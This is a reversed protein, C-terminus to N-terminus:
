LLGGHSKSSNLWPQGSSGWFLCSGKWFTGNWAGHFTRSLYSSRPLVHQYFLTWSRTVIEWLYRYVSGHSTHLLDKANICAPQTQSGLPPEWLVLWSPDQSGAPHFDFMLKSSTFSNILSRCLTYTHVSCVPSQSLYSFHTEDKSPAQPHRDWAIDEWYDPFLSSHTPTRWLDSIGQLWPDQITLLLAFHEQLGLRTVGSINHATSSSELSIM